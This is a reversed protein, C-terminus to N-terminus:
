FPTSVLVGVLLSFLLTAHLSASSGDSEAMAGFMALLVTTLGGALVALTLLIRRVFPNM